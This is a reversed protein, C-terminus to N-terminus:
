TMTLLPLQTSSPIPTVGGIPARRNPPLAGRIPAVGGIPLIAGTGQGSIGLGVGIAGDGLSGRRSSGLEAIPSGLNLLIAAFAIRHRSRSSM